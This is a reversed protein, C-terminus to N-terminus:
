VDQGTRGHLTKSAPSSYITYSYITYPHQSPSLGDERPMNRWAAVAAILDEKNQACRIVLSKMNKVAAEALGNSEPNYPSTLEHYIKHKNCFTEFIKRFQPGGDTRIYTPWGHEYFIESSKDTVHQTTTKTLRTVWGYGSFRDVLVLWDKSLADFLDTAVHRMPHRAESPKKEGLVPRPNSPRQEQCAECNDIKTKIDNKMSPWYFLQTAIKYTKTLGSHARHLEDIISRRAGKPVIIRRGDLLILTKSGILKTSM